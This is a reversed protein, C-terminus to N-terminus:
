LSKQDLKDIAFVIALFGKKTTAYNIQVDDLTKSAYYIALVKKDKRQGIVARAVYNSEDCMITFPLECNLPKM